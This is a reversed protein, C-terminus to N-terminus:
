RERYSEVDLNFKTVDEFGAPVATQGAKDVYLGTRRSLEVTGDGYVLIGGKVTLTARNTLTFGECAVLGDAQSDGTAFEVSFGPAVISSGTMSRLTDWKADAPLQDVGKIEFSGDFELRCAGIWDSSGDATVIVGTIQAGNDFRVVNPAEVYVVGTLQVERSVTPNAGALIRINEFSTIRQGTERDVYPEVRTVTNTAMPALLSLDVTPFEATPSATYVMDWIYTPGTWLDEGAITPNGRFRCQTYVDRPDTVYLKGAISSSGDMRCTKTTGKGAFSTYVDAEDDGNVGRVFAGDSLIIRGQLALGYVYAGIRGQLIDMEASITRSTEGDRGTVQITLRSRAENSFYLTADFSSEKDLHITPLSITEQRARIKGRGLAGALKTTLADALDDLLDSGTPSGEIRIEEIVAEMYSLGGEATLRAQTTTELSGTKSLDLIALQSLVIALPVLISMCVVAMFLAVGARRRARRLISHQRAM